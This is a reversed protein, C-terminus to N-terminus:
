PRGTREHYDDVLLGHDRRGDDALDHAIAAITQEVEVQRRAELAAIIAAADGHACCLNWLTEAADAVRLMAFAGPDVPSMAWWPKVPSM